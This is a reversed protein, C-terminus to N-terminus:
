KLFLTGRMVIKSSLIGINFWYPREIAAHTLGTESFRCLISEDCIQLLMESMEESSKMSM